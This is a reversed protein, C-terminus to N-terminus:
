ARPESRQSELLGEIRDLQRQLDSLRQNLRELDGASPVRWASWVDELARDSREKAWSLDSLFAHLRGLTKEERLTDDWWRTAVDTFKATARDFIM